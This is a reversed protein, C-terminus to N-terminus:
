KLRLSALKMQVRDADPKADMENFLSLAQTFYTRAQDINPIEVALQGLEALTLGTQWRTGLEQFSTLATDLRTEAEAYDGSLRHLVGWARHSIAQYLKHDYRVATEEALQVYQELGELEQQRAAGDALLAYLSHDGVWDM